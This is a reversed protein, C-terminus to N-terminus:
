FTYACIMENFSSKKVKGPIRKANLHNFGNSRHLDRFVEGLGEGQEENCEGAFCLLVLVSKTEPRDTFLRNNATADALLIEEVYITCHFCEYTKIRDADRGHIM